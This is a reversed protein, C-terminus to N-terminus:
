TFYRVIYGLTGSLKIRLIILRSGQSYNFFFFSVQGNGSCNCHLMEHTACTDISRQISFLDKLEDDSLKLKEKKSSQDVICGGLAVKSLQRQFIKEEISGALVFRYIFVGKKQGDRWIRSMAQLDSAPNWDNDFLVLRSAGILNLGVGGAKASLLFVFIDRTPENFGEVIAQRAGSPTTGDLRCHTFSLHDLMGQLMDLTKTHYSILVIKEQRKHIEHLLDHLIIIKGSDFPGMEQWPPLLDRIHQTVSDDQDGTNILAPHNCIKKLNTIIQLPNTPDCKEEYLDLVKELLCQQLDSQKCFIVFEQKKPLYKNIVDQTRRLIFSSSIDTLEKAREEGLELILEPANPQQSEM